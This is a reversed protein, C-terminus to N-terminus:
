EHLNRHEAARAISRLMGTFVFHHAPYLLYWYLLGLWGVPDYLATQRIRSGDGRPEVDFQLWARGPLKMEAALRLRRPPDCCEVRWCDVVDGMRLHEPDRRGRAMGVGGATRDLLGRLQWLANAYYWGTRGGIRQIPRFADEPAAPTCRERSDVIRNRFSVGGWDRTPGVSSLAGAWHTEAVERDENRLAQRIAEHVGVPRISFDRSAADDRVLSPTTMSGVLKRGVRAYVPTVLNLWLSSLRPTLVPVPIMWRRLGRAQAYAQMLEGYSMVDAGGIEYTRHGTAALDLAATLYALVDAVAIPQAKVAVWRPTVMVPLRQVLSRILEFSLSGSGIIISARFEITQVGHRRLTEGVQRRSRLHPSLGATEEACLGGLYIVRRVGADRAAEAFNRAGREETKEFDGAAGLAHVLYYATQVGSCARALSDPDLVDGQVVETSEGVREAMVEPRRAMCRVRHGRAALENTLRGGVYGTAGTVLVPQQNAHSM